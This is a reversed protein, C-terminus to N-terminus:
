CMPWQMIKLNKNLEMCPLLICRFFVAVFEEEEVISRLLEDTVDEISASNRQVVLWELVAKEDGLSGDYLNPIGNEYYVLVPSEDMGLKAVEKEDGM